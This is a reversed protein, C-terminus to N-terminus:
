EDTRKSAAVGSLLAEALVVDGPHTVKLNTPDGPVVRVRHGARTLLQSCDTAEFGDDMALALADELAKRRLVQPTQVRWIGARDVPEAVFMQPTVRRITDQLPIAPIVGDCEPDLATLLSDILGETLLPRAADHVVLVSTEVPVYELATALSAQRTASGATRAVIKAYGDLEKPWYSSDEPLALVISDVLSCGALTRLSHVIMPEGALPLFQKPVGSGLREGSGAALLVATVTPVSSM